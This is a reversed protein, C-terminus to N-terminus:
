KNFRVKLDMVISLLNNIGEQAQSTPNVDASQLVNMMYILKNQLGVITERESSIARISGYLVNQDHPKDFGLLALNSTSISKQSTITEAMKQLEHYAEYCAMSLNHQSKLAAESISVRPDLRLVLKKETVEGDVTLRILYCGPNVM